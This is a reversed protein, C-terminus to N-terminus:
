TGCEGGPITLFKSKSNEDSQNRVTLTVLYTDDAGYTHVPNRESSAAGDGFDWSWSTPNNGTTPTSTDTFIVTRESLTCTFNANLSTDGIEVALSATIAGTRFSLNATGRRGDGELTTQAFGDADTRVLEQLIRGLDTTVRIETGSRVPFGDSTRAFIEISSSGDVTISSPRATVALSTGTPGVPFSGSDCGFVLFMVTSLLVLRNFM